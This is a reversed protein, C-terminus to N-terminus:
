KKRSRELEKHLHALEVGDMACCLRIYRERLRSGSVGIGDLYAVIESIPIANPGVQSWLRRAGLLCFADYFEIDEGRLAPKAAAAPHPRGTDELISKFFSESGGWELQWKM